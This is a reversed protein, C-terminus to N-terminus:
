ADRRRFVLISVVVAVLLLAGLFAGAELHTMVQIPTCREGPACDLSPDFYHHNTALWGFINNGLSWRGAGEVPVLNTLIEGGVAYVFLLAITTVSHRFIMTLAYGGLGAAMTLVTARLLHWGVRSTDASSVDLGRAAAVAWLALWFAGLVVVAVAGSGLTVAGAKAAWLRLRRPQFLLQNTMAGSSWDAGAFTCGAVVMLGVVVLALHLGEVGLVRGLDLTHRPYYSRASPVLAQRCDGPAAQPGLYSTPDAECARVEARLKSRQGELQAQAAADSRDSASLPRTDWAIVGVLVAALAVALLVLLAIARRLRFRTLEVVLSRM